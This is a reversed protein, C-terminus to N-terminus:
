SKAQVAAAALAGSASYLKGALAGTLNVVDRGSGLIEEALDKSPPQMLVLHDSTDFLRQLTPVLLREIHPIANLAFSKNSGFIGEMRIHPDYVSVERGKGILRELLTIAPSERLDDTNEKFALGIVGIRGAPLDLVRRISRELHSDNSSLVSRLMPLDLDLRSARYTLARLDKPLCSGGFAPGPSLYARSVNLKEDRCLTQMVEKGDVGLREALSGIENAFCIKVAHFANCAYKIMEATPLTVESVTAGLPEYLEAVRAVAEENRGGVVILSPEVFDRVATGERLFEPNSIVHVDPLGELPPEVLQECTGPFVTSRIVVTFPKPEARLSAAFQGVVHRLQELGLNGNRESPTGVCVFAIDSEAIAEEASDTARLRGAGATERVIEALGPEYFPSEGNNVSRVKHLDLDVGIVQNGLRAFCAASVCGVYGLGFVAIRAKNAM